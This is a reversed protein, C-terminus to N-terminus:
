PSPAEGAAQPNKLQEAQAKVTKREAKPALDVAKQAALDATRTDGALGAYYVVAMYAETTNQKAAVIQAAKQAKAPQNLVGPGFMEAVQSALLASPEDAVELYREWYTAAKRLQQKSEKTTFPRGDSSVETAALDYQDRVLTFLIKQDSPNAALRKRNKDIREEIVGAGTNDNDSGGGGLANLLGGTADSGVGLFVLGGGMLLALLLYTVQVTRRRRGRLDFLM